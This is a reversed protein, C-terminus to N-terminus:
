PGIGVRHSLRAAMLHRRRADNTHPQISRPAQNPPLPAQTKPGLTFVRIPHADADAAELQGRDDVSSQVLYRKVSIEKAAM